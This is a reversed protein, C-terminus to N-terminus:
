PLPVMENGVLRTSELTVQNSSIVPRGLDQELPEIAEIARWNTCSLFICHAEIGKMNSRVFDAIERPTVRGIERNDGIEMGKATVVDYGAEAICDAVSRTLEDRYPTFVAVTEPRVSTLQRMMSGVVTVGTAGTEREIRETLERDHALGGISGASTCGFVVLDPATTQIRRLTETLEEGMMRIEADRTVTELFIRWTSITWTADAYRHFDPEMVTNSAPVILAVHLAKM